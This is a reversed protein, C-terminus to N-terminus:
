SKAAQSLADKVASIIGRSSYTAGSVTDVDTSQSSIIENVETDFVRNYFRPTDQSFITNIDTIKGSKITVEVETTGGRFGTGTGTYTGDKYKQTSEKTAAFAVNKSSDPSTQNAVYGGLSTTGYIGIFAALAVSSALAPNMDQGIINACTNKRPCVEICKFCNICDGGSVEETKYLKLGMSCNNTCIRYMGCKDSPKRIKFFGVRSILSFFAGLPCLYRCFFREVFFAGITILLLFLLGIPM